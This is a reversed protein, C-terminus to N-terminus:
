SETRNELHPIGYIRDYRDDVPYRRERVRQFNRESETFSPLSPLSSSFSSNTCLRKKLDPSKIPTSGISQQSAAQGVGQAAEPAPELVPPGSKSRVPTAITTPAAWANKDPQLAKAREVLAQVQHSVPTPEVNDARKRGGGGTSDARKGM